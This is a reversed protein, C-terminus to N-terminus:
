FQNGHARTAALSGIMAHAAPGIHLDDAWLYNTSTAAVKTADGPELTQTTCGPLAVTCAKNVVNSLAYGVGTTTTVMTQVQADAFVPGACRGNDVVGARLKANFQNSLEKLLTGRAGNIASEALGFPSLALSPTSVYLVRGLQTNCSNPYDRNGEILDNVLAALNAGAAEVQAIAANRAALTEGAAVYSNYAALVDYMGGQVTVLTKSNFTGGSSRYAAVQQAVDAVTAGVSARMVAAFVTASGPCEAFVLGFSSALTQTWVPNAACDQTVGDVALANISYKRGANPAGQLLSMEDGFVVLKQPEFPEVRSVSGGCAGLTALTALALLIRARRLAGAVFPMSESM